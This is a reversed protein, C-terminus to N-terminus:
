IDSVVNLVVSALLALALGFCIGHYKSSASYQSHEQTLRM